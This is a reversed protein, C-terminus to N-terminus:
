KTRSLKTTKHSLTDLYDVSKEGERWALRLIAGVGSLVLNLSEGEAYQEPCIAAPSLKIPPKDRWQAQPQGDIGAEITWFETDNSWKGIWEEWKGRVEHKIVALPAVFPTNASVTSAERWGKLYKITQLATYASEIGYTSNTMIAIGSEANPFDKHQGLLDAIGMVVCRYGPDNAGGHGFYTGPDKPAVWGLSMVNSEVETLMGKATEQKLFTNEIGILSRQLALVAKCLDGPTTWLGAAALEPFYHWPISSKTVGTLYAESLDVGEEPTGYCSDHMELPRLVLEQMLQPYSVSTLKELAIQLLVFGGGSYQWQRGPIGVVKFPTTNVGHKGLVIDIASPHDVASYGPFGWNNLGATHSLIQAFTIEQVLAAPGLSSIIEEPLFPAIKDELSLRGQDALRMVALASIPKSISCAQFRTKVHDGVTSYCRTTIKGHDLVAISVSPAGLSAFFKSPDTQQEPQSLILDELEDFLTM